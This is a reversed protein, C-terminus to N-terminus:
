AGAVREPLQAIFALTGLVYDPRHRGEARHDLGVVVQPLDDSPHPRHM